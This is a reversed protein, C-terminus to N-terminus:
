VSTDLVNGGLEAIRADVKELAKQMTTYSIEPLKEGWMQEAEAFGRLMGERGAQLKELDDGAGNVVFDAIRESTKSIGFFGDESVLASAEDQTLNAIPKGTYGIDALSFTNAQDGFTISSQAMMEQQFQALYANVIEKGSLKNEQADSLSITSKTSYTASSTNEYSVNLEM